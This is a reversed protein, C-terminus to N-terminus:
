AQTVEGQIKWLATPTPVQIFGSAVFNSQLLKVEISGSAIWQRAIYSDIVKQLEDEILSAQVVTYQPQNGSIYTLAASQLDVELNRLIYPAVIAKGGAAFLALRRSFQEDDLVFSVRDDFLGNADGLTVVDDAFPMTIYQQNRWNLTNSLLKGFAFFMNKAKTTSTSYFGVQKEVAAYDEATAKVPSYLGVVGKFQGVDLDEIDVDTFDSSVLITYFDSLKSAIDTAIELDDNVLVFVRQMGANFLQAVDANDTLAAVAAPTTCLTIVGTPVEDKPKVVVLVNKLFATSAQPTPEISTIPFVYDLLLNM